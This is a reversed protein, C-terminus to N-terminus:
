HDLEKAAKLLLAANWMQNKAGGNEGTEPNRWESFTENIATDEFVKKALSTAGIRHLEIIATYTAHNWVQGYQNVRTNARAEEGECDLPMVLENACFGYPTRM